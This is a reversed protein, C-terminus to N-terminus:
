PLSSPQTLTLIAPCVPQFLNHIHREAPATVFAAREEVSTADMVELDDM